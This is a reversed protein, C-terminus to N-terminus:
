CWPFNPLLCLPLDASAPAAVILVLILGVILVVVYRRM